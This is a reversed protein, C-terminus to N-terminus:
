PTKRPTDVPPTAPEIFATDAAAGRQALPNRRFATLATQVATQRSRRNFVFRRRLPNSSVVVIFRSAAVASVTSSAM